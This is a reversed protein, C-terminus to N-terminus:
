EVERPQLPASVGRWEELRQDNRLRMRQYEVGTFVEDLLQTDDEARAVALTTAAERVFREAVPGANVNRYGKVWWDVIRDRAGPLTIADVLRDRKFHQNVRRTSPLLNWLDGCPWAIWPFCHDIDLTHEDLRKGSWVCFVREGQALLGSAITRALRTDRIPDLWVLGRDLEDMSLSRGQGAGYAQMLRAWEGIIIPEIWVNLHRASEV